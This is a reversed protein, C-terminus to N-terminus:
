GASTWETTPGEISSHRFSASGHGEADRDGLIGRLMKQRQRSAMLSNQLRRDGGSKKVLGRSQSTGDLPQARIGHGLIFQPCAIQSNQIIHFCLFHDNRDLLPLDAVLQNDGLLLETSM